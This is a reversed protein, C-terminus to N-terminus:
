VGSARLTDEYISMGDLGNNVLLDTTRRKRIVGFIFLWVQLEAVPYHAHDIALYGPGEKERRATTLTQVRLDIDGLLFIRLAITHNKGELSNYNFTHKM